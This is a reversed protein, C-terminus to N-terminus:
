HFSQEESPFSGDQVDKKFATVAKKIEDALSAYKKVFKPSFGPKLGLLDNTVLVQGSCHVGAGIGITPVKLALTIRKALESPICELVIAFVGAKELALADKFIREADKIEKGQVCYKEATQPLLGLHGMVPINEAILASIIEPKFGELKVAIAGAKLLRKANKLADEVNSYSDAPLDGIVPTKEVSGAVAAIHRAMDDMTVSSTGKFGLVVMGLSDGVLILDINAEELLKAIQCDYATLMVLGKKGKLYDFKM